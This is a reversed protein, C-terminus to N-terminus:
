NTSNLSSNFKIFNHSFKNQYISFINNYNSNEYIKFKMVVSYYTAILPMDNALKYSLMNVNDTSQKISMFVSKNSVIHSLILKSFIYTHIVICIYTHKYNYLPAIRALWTSNRLLIDFCTWNSHSIIQESYIYHLSGQQFFLVLWSYKHPRFYLSPASFVSQCLERIIFHM